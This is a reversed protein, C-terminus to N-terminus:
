AIAHWVFLAAWLGTWVGGVIAATAALRVRRGHRDRWGILGLVTGIVGFSISIAPIFPKVDPDTVTFGLVLMVLIALVTFAAALIPVPAMNRVPEVAPANM